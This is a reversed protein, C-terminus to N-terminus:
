AAPYTKSKLVKQRPQALPHSAFGISVNGIREAEIMLDNLGFSVLEKSSSLFGRM